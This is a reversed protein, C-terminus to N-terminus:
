ILTVDFDDSLEVTGDENLLVIKTSSLDNVYKKTQSLSIGLVFSLQMLDISHLKKLMNIIKYKPDTSLLSKMISNSKSILEIKKDLEDLKSKLEKNRVSLSVIQDSLEYILQEREEIISLLSGIYASKESDIKDKHDSESGKEMETKIEELLKQQGKVDYSGSLFNLLKYFESKIESLLLENSENVVDKIIDIVSEVEFKNRSDILNPLPKTPVKSTTDVKLNQIEVLLSNLKKLILKYSNNEKDNSHSTNIINSM